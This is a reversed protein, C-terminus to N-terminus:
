APVFSIIFSIMPREMPTYYSGSLYGDPAALRIGTRQEAINSNHYDQRLLLIIEMSM